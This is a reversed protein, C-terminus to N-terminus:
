LGSSWLRWSPSLHFRMCCATTPFKSKVVAVYCVLIYQEDLQLGPVQCCLNHKVCAKKICRRMSTIPEKNHQLGYWKFM